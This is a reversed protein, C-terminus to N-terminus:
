DEEGSIEEITRGTLVSRPEDAVPNRRPDAEEDDAKM